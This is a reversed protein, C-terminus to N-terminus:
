NNQGGLVEILTEVYLIKEPLHRFFGTIMLEFSKKYEERVYEVIIEKKCLDQKAQRVIKAHKYKNENM